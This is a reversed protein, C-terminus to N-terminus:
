RLRRLRQDILNDPLFVARDAKWVELAKILLTDDCANAAKLEDVIWLVGHVRLGAAAAVTRLLGDGTLLIGDEHYQTTVLCFCDNASLRGHQRKLAFVDGMREPPLDFTEMGGDDLLAWEQPTFDLLESERVPLPVVFRYPLRCLVHLLSGKRLDILCSADNVVVCTM